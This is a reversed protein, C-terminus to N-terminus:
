LRALPLAYGGIVILKEPPLNLGRVLQQLKKSDAQHFGALVLLSQNKHTHIQLCKLGSQKTQQKIQTAAQATSLAVLTVDDGTPDPHLRSVTLAGRMDGRANTPLLAHDAFPLSMYIKLDRHKALLPWWPNKEGARPVPLLALTHKKKAVAAIAAAASSLSQLPVVNGFFDRALDWLSNRADPETVAVSYHQEQLTFSAIMERWVKIILTPPLHGHPRRLLARLMMVERGPRIHVARKDKLPRVQEVIAARRVLMRHLTKDVVDIQRRLQKLKPLDPM